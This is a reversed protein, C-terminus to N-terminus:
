TTTESGRAEHDVFSIYVSQAGSMVPPWPWLSVYVTSPGFGNRAANHLPHLSHFGRWDREFLERFEEAKYGSKVFWGKLEPMDLELISAFIRYDEDSIDMEKEEKSSVGVGDDEQATDMKEEAEPSIYSHEEKSIDMMENNSTDKVNVRTAKSGVPVLNSNDWTELM